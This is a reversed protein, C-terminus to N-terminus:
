PIGEKRIWTLTDKQLQVYNTDRVKHILQDAKYIYATYIMHRCVYTVFFDGDNFDAGM